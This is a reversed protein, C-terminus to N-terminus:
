SQNNQNKFLFTIIQARKCTQDPGFRNAGVGATLGGQVAWEVAKAYYDDTSVDNFANKISVSPKGASAWLFTMAQARTCTQNPGFRNASVGSTIKNEAAWLVAKYYYDGAEVDVFPNKTSKPEPKGASAWLFTVIQGRTCSQDPGFRDDSVGATINNEMAWLVPEYYYNEKSVDKFHHKLTSTFVATYTVDGTVPAITPTWGNFTYTHNMDAAKVPEAGNYVPMTGHVVSTDTELVTGDENKWTVTYTKVEQTWGAYVTTDESMTVSTIEKTLGKDSYWGNFQYGSRVPKKDLKVVTGIDYTEDTYSTGGNSEFHLVAQAKEDAMYYFRLVDGESLYYQNLAKDPPNGGNVTYMWGSYAGHEREALKVGNPDTVSSVYSGSGGWKYQNSTMAIRLADWATTTYPVLGEVKFSDLSQFGDINGGDIGVTVTIHEPEPNPNEGGSTGKVTLEAQVPQKYLAAFQAYSPATDTQSFKEWYKGYVAHTLVSNVTVKTDYEQRHVRLVEDEIVTPRSSCFLRWMQGAMPDYGPLEDTIIGSLTLGGAGRIFKITDGDPVAEAFTNLNATINDPSTNDGKIADFYMPKVQEMLALAGDIEEQTLPKVTLTFDRTAKVVNTNRDSINVTYTVTVPESGPLPRYIVARYGNVEMVDTNSSSVTVRETDRDMIGAAQLKAPIPLQIDGTVAETDVVQDGNISDRLLSPYSNLRESQTEPDIGSGKITITFTKHNTIPAAQTFTTDVLSFPMEATLVIQTDEKTLAVHGVYPEAPDDSVQTVVLNPKFCHWEIKGFPFDSLVRPLVLDQSVKGDVVEAWRWDEGSTDKFTNTNEGKIDDWTLTKIYEDMLVEVKDVDWPITIGATIDVTQEGLRLTFTVNKRQAFYLGTWTRPDEYFYTITGDPAIYDVDPNGYTLEGINKLTVQVDFNGPQEGAISYGRDELLTEMMTVVNRDNAEWSPQFWMHSLEGNLKEKISNLIDAQKAPISWVKLTFDRADKLEQGQANTISVTATLTIDRTSDAPLTLKGSATDIVDAESCSWAITVGDDGSTPLNLTLDRDIQYIGKEDAKLTEGEAIKLVLANKVTQLTNWGDLGSIDPETGGQRALVPYGMNQSNSSAKNFYAGDGRLAIVFADSRLEDATKTAGAAPLNGVAHPAANRYGYVNVFSSANEAYGVVSGGDLNSRIMGTAYVNKIVAEATASGAIGGLAGKNNGNNTVSVTSYSNEITGYNKGAIGGAHASASDRDPSLNNYNSTVTGHASCGVIRGSSYNLAAIGGLWQGGGVISVNVDCNEITGSNQNSIAGIKGGGFGVTENILNANITLNKVVGTEGISHFLGGEGVLGSISHNNGDFIGGFDIDYSGIKTWAKEALDLNAALQANINDPLTKDNIQKAFWALEAPTNIIYFDKGEITQKQPATESATGDWADGSVAPEADISVPQDGVTFSGQVPARGPATIIYRYSGAALKWTNVSGAMEAGSAAGIIKITYNETGTVNFTIDQKVATEELVIQEITSEGSVTFAQSKETYGECTVTWTYEGKPLQYTLASAPNIVTGDKATVTLRANAPTLGAFKIAYTVPKLTVNETFTNDTGDFYDTSIEGDTISTYDEATATYTYLGEPIEYVHPTGDIPKMIGYEESKLEIVTTEPDTNFTLTYIDSMVFAVDTPQQGNPFVTDEVTFYGPATATYTYSVGDKLEYVRKMCDLIGDVTVPEETTAPIVTGSDTEKVVVEADQPYVTLAWDYTDAAVAPAQWSLVPFGENINNSDAAFASGLDVSQSKLDDATAGTGYKGASGVYYSNNVTGGRVLGAVESYNTYCNTMTSSALNGAIGGINVAYGSTTIEGVFYCNSLNIDGYSANGILGGSNAGLTISVRSYCDSVTNANGRDSQDILSGSSNAGATITGEIGLNKITAGQILTFLGGESSQYGKIVHGGGDFTGTYPLYGDWDGYEDLIEGGRISTFPQGGLDIDATLVACIDAKGANAQESFWALEAGTGIQYPDDATGAGATVATVTGDWTTAAATQTFLGSPLLGILMALALLLSISRKKLM